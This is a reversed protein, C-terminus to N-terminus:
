KSTSAPATTANPSPVAKEGTPAFDPVPLGVKRCFDAFRPDHQWVAFFPDLRLELVGPDRAQRARELWAFAQDANKRLAYVEAIQFSFADSHAAILKQLAADAARQDTGIQLALTTGVERWASDPEQQADALAAKADGRVIDIVALDLYNFAADPRLEIAKRIAREAADANGRALEYEALNQWAGINMPDLRLAEHLLDVSEDLRGLQALVEALHQQPRAADEPLALRVAKRYEVEAATPNMDGLVLTAGLALHGTVLDPALTQAKRADDRAHAYADAAENGGLYGQALLSWALSRSAYALAYGADIGIASGYEAVARRLGDETQLNLYFKGQLWADYAQLNGSPPRESQIAGARDVRLKIRLRAAVAAALEDQLAFLDRYQRDYNQSWMVSGDAANILTASVRVEDGARQVSGELLHAVGLKAGISRSDTQTARFQFASDRSIVKLGPSQALETILSESLGDSFYRDQQNGSDNRLPLVAISDDPIASDVTADALVAPHPAPAIRWLLGGGVVLLLTVILLETGTVRQAGREGHYWALVLTVFFGIALAITIGRRVSDQWAFQQGVIDLGQLLAFAAALYALSWQVLKRDRLRQLLSPALDLTTTVLRGGPTHLPRGPAARIQVSLMDDSGVGGYRALDAILERCDAYRQSPNKVTMRTLIRALEADVQPNFARVDKLPVEVIERMLGLPSANAFPLQGTLCEFLVIGLSYIDGRADAAAGTYREPAIYGPTGLFSGTTTLKPPADQTSLAIGFDAVKVVGSTSILINGPKIDRHILGKDHACALGRAAQLILRVAQEPALRTERQLLADLSAGDVFEMVFYPQEDQSGIAHVRVLHADDLAAMARAERQFREVVRADHALSESLLKIAVHRDLAPEHAKYVVGMGGRGLEAVLRYPGISDRM